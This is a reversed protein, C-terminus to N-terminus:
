AESSALSFNTRSKTAAQTWTMSFSRKSRAHGEGGVAATHHRTRPPKPNAKTEANPPAAPEGTASGRTPSPSGGRTPSPSRGRTRSDALRRRTWLDGNLGCTEALDVRLVRPSPPSKHNQRLSTSLFAGRGRGHEEHAHVVGAPRLRGGAPQAMEGPVADLHPRDAVLDARADLSEEGLEGGSTRAPDFSRSKKGSFRGSPYRKGRSAQLLVAGIRMWRLLAGHVLRDVVGVSVEEGAARLPELLVRRLGLPLVS